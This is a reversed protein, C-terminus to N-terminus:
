RYSGQGHACCVSTQARLGGAAGCGGPSAERTPYCPVRTGYGGTSRLTSQKAANKSFSTRSVGCCPTPRENPWWKRESIVREDSRAQGGGWPMTGGEGLKYPPPACRLMKTAVPVKVPSDLRFGGAVRNQFFRSMISPKGFRSRPTSSGKRSGPFGTQALWRAPIWGAFAVGGRLCQIWMRKKNSM